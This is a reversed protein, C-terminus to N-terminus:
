MTKECHVCEYYSNNNGSPDPHYSTVLHPCEKRANALQDKLRKTNEYYELELKRKDNQIERCVKIVELTKNIADATEKPTKCKEMVAQILSENIM